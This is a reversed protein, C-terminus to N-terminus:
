HIVGRVEEQPMCLAARKVWRFGITLTAKSKRWISAGADIPVDNHESLNQVSELVTCCEGLKEVVNQMVQPDEFVDGANTVKTSVEGLYEAFQAIWEGRRALCKAIQWAKKLLGVV